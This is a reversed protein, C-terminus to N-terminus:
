SSNVVKPLINLQNSASGLLLRQSVGRPLPYRSCRQPLPGVESESYRTLCFVRMTKWAWTRNALATTPFVPKLAAQPELAPRLVWEELPDLLNRRVVVDTCEAERLGFVQVTFKHGQEALGVRYATLLILLDRTRLSSKLRRSFLAVISSVFDFTKSLAEGM